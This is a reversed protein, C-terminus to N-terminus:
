QNSGLERIELIEHVQQMFNVEHFIFFCKNVARHESLSLIILQQSKKM